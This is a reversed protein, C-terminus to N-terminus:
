ARAEPHRAVTDVRTAGLSRLLRATENADYKPDWSEVSIFFRDDTAREFEKVGFLPHFHMPLQNLALMGVVTSIAALLVGLEFTIPIFPQWNFIPKGSILLPYAIGSAWMQLALGGAAGCLGFALTVWPLRSRGLGMAADLGHVPFPSHADWRTYGADRMRECAHFLARPSEFEALLGFTRGSPLAPVLVPM